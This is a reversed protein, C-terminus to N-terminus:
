KNKRAAARRRYKSIVSNDDERPPMDNQVRYVRDRYKGIVSKDDASPPLDARVRDVRDLVRMHVRRAAESARYPCKDLIEAPVRDDHEANKFAVQLEEPHNEQAWKYCQKEAEIAQKLRESEIKRGRDTIAVGTETDFDQEMLFNDLEEKIIQRLQQKTTKM